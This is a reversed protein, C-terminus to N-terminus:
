YRYLIHNKVFGIKNSATDTLTGDAAIGYEGNSLETTFANGTWVKITDGTTGSELAIGFVNKSAEDASCTILSNSIWAGKTVSASLQIEAIENTNICDWKDTALPDTSNDWKINFYKNNGGIIHWIFNDADDLRSGFKCVLSPCGIPSSCGEFEAVCLSNTNAGASGAMMLMFYANVVKCNRYIVHQNAYPNSSSNSHVTIEGDEFTCSQWIFKAGNYQAGDGIVSPNTYSKWGFNSVDAGYVKKCHLNENYLMVGDLSSDQHICYGTGSIITMNSLKSPAYKQDFVPATGSGNESTVTVTDPKLGHTHTFAPPILDYEEYTGPLIIVEYQNFYSSDTIAAYADAISTYDGNGNIDVVIKNKIMDKLEYDGISTLKEVHADITYICTSKIEAYVSTTSNFDVAAPAENWDILVTFSGNSASLLELDPADAPASAREISGISQWTSGDYGRLQLLLDYSHTGHWIYWFAYKKYANNFININKIFLLQSRASLPVTDFIFPSKAYYDLDIIDYYNDVTLGLVSDYDSDVVKFITTYTHNQTIASLKYCVDIKDYNAALTLTYNKLTQLNTMLTTPTTGVIGSIIVHSVNYTSVPRIFIKTGATFPGTIYIHQYDNYNAVSYFDSGIHSNLENYQGRVADGASAYTIGNAGVRIDVLEADATTSGDPLAIIGDIRANITTDASERDTIEDQIDQANTRIADGLNHENVIRDHIETELNTELTGVRENTTDIRENANDIHLDVINFQRTIAQNTVVNTSNVNLSDDITFPIVLQWFDENHINIGKPVPQISMYLNYGRVAIEEGPAVEQWIVDFVLTLAEYQRAISWEVPDAFKIKNYDVFTDLKEGLRKVEKIIWDLNMEHFDSYPFQNIFDSM